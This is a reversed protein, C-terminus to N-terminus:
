AKQIQFIYFKLYSTEAMNWLIPHDGNQQTVSIQKLVAKCEQAAEKLMKEFLETEMYRSCSCTVLYGETEKLVDMAKKNITKYGNYAHDVTRRSKTFAPPDLVITDFDGPKVSDLYEFVDAKTFTMRENIHNRKANEEAKELALASVDVATVHSAGGYAANLAFGGTHTFCDLVKKGRSMNRVLVRNSKQDLFYGTKQGNEFDVGILLGNENMVTEAPGHAEKYFGKYLELGEKSRPAIDNREYMDRITQGDEEMVKLLIEFLMDKRQELAATTMESVLVDNYRDVIWGPIGDAEAFIIRCSDLSDPMITKRFSYASRIKKEFYSEDFEVTEDHTFLRVTIHSCSSYSGAGIFSGAENVVDVFSGDEIDENVVANNSYLWMQGKLLFPEGKADVIVKKRM